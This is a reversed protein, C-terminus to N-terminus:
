EKITYQERLIRRIDDVGRNFSEANVKRELNILETQQQTVVVVNDTQCRSKGVVIGVLYLGVMIVVVFLLLYIRNM